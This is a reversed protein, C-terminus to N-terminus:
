ITTNPVDFRVLASYFRSTTPQAPDGGTTYRYIYIIYAVYKTICYLYKTFLCLLRRTLHVGLRRRRKWVYLMYMYIFYRCVATDGSTIHAHSFRKAAAIRIGSM